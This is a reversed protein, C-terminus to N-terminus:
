IEGGKEEEYEFEIYFATDKVRKKIGMLKLVRRLWKQAYGGSIGIRYLRM